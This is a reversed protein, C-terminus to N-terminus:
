KNTNEKIYDAYTARFFLAAQSNFKKGYSVLEEPMNMVFLLEMVHEISPLSESKPNLYEKLKSETTVSKVKQALSEVTMQKGNPTNKFKEYSNILVKKLYQMEESINTPM